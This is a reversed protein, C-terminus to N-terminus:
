NQYVVQAEDKHDIFVSWEHIVLLGSVAMTYCINYANNGDQAIDYPVVSLPIVCYIACHLVIVVSISFGM